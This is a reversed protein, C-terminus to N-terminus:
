AAAFLSILTVTSSCVYVLFKGSRWCRVTYFNDHEFHLFFETKDELQPGRSLKTMSGRPVVGPERVLKVVVDLFHLSRAIRRMSQRSANRGDSALTSSDLVRLHLITPLHSVDHRYFLKTDSM